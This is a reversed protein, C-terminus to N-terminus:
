KRRYTIKGATVTMVPKVDKIEQPSITFFDREWVTMDAVFGPLLKGKREEDFSAYASHVTYCDVAEDVSLLKETHWGGKPNGEFDMGTVACYLNFVPAFPEVPADTGFPVPIGADYLKRFHYSNELRKPGVRSEAMHLDCELFVPQIYAVIGAEAIRAILEESLIQAHVIGHRNSRGTHRRQVEEIVSVAQECAGDGICHIAVSMGELHAREVLRCLEETDPYMQLGCNGPDDSYPEKLWATKAGLSGDCFTKLPGLRFFDGGDGTKYGSKKFADYEELSTLRCQEYVRVALRGEQDLQRYATIVDRMDHGPMSQLDDSQISTIGAEAAKEGMQVIIDKIAEVSPKPMADYVDSLREYIIGNPIGREDVGVHAGGHWPAEPDIGMRRLAASNVTCLHTCVRAAAAPVDGTVQDLDEKTLPRKEKWNEENWGFSQLWGDGKPAHARLFQRLVRKAEEVTKTGGLDAQALFRGTSLFHLHSDNFGPLVLKGGLDETQVGSGALKLIEEDSGVAIIRGDEICLASVWRDREARIKGHYFIRKM